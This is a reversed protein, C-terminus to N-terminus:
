LHGQITLLCFRLCSDHPGSVTLLINTIVHLSWGIDIIRISSLVYYTHAGWRSHWALLVALAVQRQQRRLVLRALWRACEGHTEMTACRAAASAERSQQLLVQRVAAVSAAAVAAAQVAQMLQQQLHQQAQRTM